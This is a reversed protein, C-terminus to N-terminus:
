GSLLDEMTTGRFVFELENVNIFMAHKCDKGRMTKSLIYSDVKGAILISTEKRKYKVDLYFGYPEDQKNVVATLFLEYDGISPLNAIYVINGNKIAYRLGIKNKYGQPNFISLPSRQSEEQAINLFRNLTEKMLEM